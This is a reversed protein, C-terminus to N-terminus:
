DERDCNVGNQELVRSEQLCVNIFQNKKEEFVYDWYFDNMKKIEWNQQSYWNRAIKKGLFYDRHFDNVKKSERNDQTDM